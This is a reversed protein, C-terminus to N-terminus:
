QSVHNRILDIVSKSNETCEMETQIEAESILIMQIFEELDLYESANSTRLLNKLTLFADATFTRQALFSDLDADGLVM